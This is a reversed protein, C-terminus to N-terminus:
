HGNAVGEIEEWFCLRSCLIRGTVAISSAKFIVKILLVNAYCMM